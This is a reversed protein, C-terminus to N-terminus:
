ICGAPSSPFSTAVYKELHHTTIKENKITTTTYGTLNLLLITLGGTALVIPFIASSLGQTALIVCSSLAAVFSKATDDGVAKQWLRVAAIVVLSVAAPAFGSM